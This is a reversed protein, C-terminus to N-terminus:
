TRPAPSQAELDPLLKVTQRRALEARGWPDHRAIMFDIKNGSTPHIVNFQGGRAVAERAAALSVYFEPAPFASCLSEVKDPQLDVVIDIDQTLRAQGYFMSAMSGVVMHPINLQELTALAQRLLDFQEM